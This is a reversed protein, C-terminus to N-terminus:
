KIKMRLIKDVVKGVGQNIHCEWAVFVRIGKARLERVIMVDRSVAANRVLNLLPNSNSHKSNAKCNKHSHWYCGHVFIALNSSRIFLDPTGILSKIHTEFQEGRLILAEQLRLEPSTNTSKM